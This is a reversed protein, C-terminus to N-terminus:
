VPRGDITNGRKTMSSPIVFRPKKGQSNPGSIIINDVVEGTTGSQEFVIANEYENTTIRNRRINVNQNATFSGFDDIGMTTADLDNDEIYVNKCATTGLQVFDPHAGKEHKADRVSSNRVYVGDVNSPDICDSGMRSFAVGDVTINKGTWIVVGDRCDHIPGKKIALNSVNRGFVAWGTSDAGAFETGNFTVGDSNSVDMFKGQGASSWGTVKGGNITVNKGSIKGGGKLTVGACNLTVTSAYAKSINLAWSGAELNFVEGGTAAQLAKDLEAQGSVRIGTPVPTPTPTEDVPDDVPVPEAVGHAALVAKAWAIQEATYDDPTKLIHQADPIKSAPYTPEPEPEPEPVPEEVPAAAKMAEFVILAKEGEDLGEKCERLAAAGAEIMAPTIM